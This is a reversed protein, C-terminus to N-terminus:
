AREHITRTAGPADSVPTVGADIGRPPNGTCAHHLGLLFNYKEEPTTSSKWVPLMSRPETRGAFHGALYGLVYNSYETKTM